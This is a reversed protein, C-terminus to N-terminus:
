RKEKKKERVKRALEPGVCQEAFKCYESCGLDLKPNRVKENCKKCRRQSEDKFFEMAAGCHPCLVDFVDGPKWYQTDQGPCKM